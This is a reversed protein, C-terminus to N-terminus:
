HPGAQRAESIVYLLQKYSQQSNEILQRAVFQYYLQRLTLVFGRAQHEAIIADAQEILDRV